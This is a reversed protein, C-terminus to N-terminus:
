RGRSGFRERVYRRFEADFEAPTLEFVADYTRDVRPVILADHGVTEVPTGAPLRALVQEAAGFHTIRGDAMAIVADSEYLMTDRLGHRFPDGTFTLVAGRLATTASSPAM